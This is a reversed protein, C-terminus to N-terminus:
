SLRRYALRNRSSLFNCFLLTQVKLLLYVLLGISTGLKAGIEWHML